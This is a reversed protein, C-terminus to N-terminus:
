QVDNGVRSYGRCAATGAGATPASWNVWLGVRFARFCGGPMGITMLGAFRLHKCAEHVHKALALCDTPEM